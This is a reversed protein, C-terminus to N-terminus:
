LIKARFFHELLQINVYHQIQKQTKKILKARNICLNTYQANFDMLALGKINSFLM